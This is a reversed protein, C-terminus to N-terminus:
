QMEEAPVRFAIMATTGGQAGASLDLTGQNHEVLGKAVYLGLGFHGPKASTFPAYLKRLMRGEIGTGRDSVEIGVRAQDAIVRIEIPKLEAQHAEVANELVLSLAQVIEEPFCEIHVLRGAEVAFVAAPYRRKV